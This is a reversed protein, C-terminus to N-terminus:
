TPIHYDKCFHAKKVHIMMMMMMMMMAIVVVVVIKTM